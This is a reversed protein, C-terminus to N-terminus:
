NVQLLAKGNVLTRHQLQVRHSGVGRRRAFGPGREYGRCLEGSVTFPDDSPLWVTRDVVGHHDRFEVHPM